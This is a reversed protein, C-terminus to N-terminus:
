RGGIELVEADTLDYWEGRVQKAAYLSHLEKEVQAMDDVAFSYVVEIELPLFTAIKKIRSEVNTSKGIKYFSTGEMHVLYVYGAASKKEPLWEEELGEGELLTEIDAACKTAEYIDDWKPSPHEADLILDTKGTVYDYGVSVSNCRKVITLM